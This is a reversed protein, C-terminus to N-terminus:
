NSILVTLLIKLLPKSWRRPRSKGPSFLVPKVSVCFQHIYYSFISFRSTARLQICSKPSFVRTACPPPLTPCNELDTGPVQLHILAPKAGVHHLPQEEKRRAGVGACLSRGFGEKRQLSM